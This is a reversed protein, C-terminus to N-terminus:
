KQSATLLQECCVRCVKNIRVPAAVTTVDPLARGPMYAERIESVPIDSTWQLLRIEDV